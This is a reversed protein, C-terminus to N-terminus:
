PESSAHVPEPRAHAEVFTNGVGQIQAIRRNREHEWADPPDEKDWREYREREAATLTMHWVAEFYLYTRAIEGHDSPDPEAVRGQVEFNCRGFERSEGEVEGFPANARDAALKAVAPRVNMLDCEMREFQEDVMRCCDLGSKLGRRTHCELFAAPAQWCELTRGFRSSPIVRAWTV